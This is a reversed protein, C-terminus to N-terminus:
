RRQELVGVAPDGAVGHLPQVQDGVEPITQHLIQGLDIHTLELSAAEAKQSILASYTGM